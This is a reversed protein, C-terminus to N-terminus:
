RLILRFSAERTMSGADGREVTVSVAEGPRKNLLALKLDVFSEVLEGDVKVIRDRLLIGADRAASNDSFDSVVLRDGGTDLMVGLKGSPPLEVPESVLLYDSELQVTDETEGQLVSAPMTGSRRAFRAPIGSRIVHGDGALVVLHRGPHAEVYRATRAAMTEDWVLQAEVFNEFSMHQIEPHQQFVAQLRERYGPVDRDFRQPIQARETDSLGSIGERAVKSSIEQRANLAVVPVGHARAFELIPAYLRYDFQWRSLYETKLLMERTDIRGEVYADLAAQFPQQFYEVGIAMDPNQQYLRCIIALQNLHHEYRDHVEGIIVVREPALRSVLAEFTFAENGSLVSPPVWGTGGLAQACADARAAPLWGLVAIAALV